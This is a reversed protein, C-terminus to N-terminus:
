RIGTVCALKGRDRGAVEAIERIACVPYEFAIDRAPREAWVGTLCDLSNEPHCGCFRLAVENIRMTQRGALRTRAV